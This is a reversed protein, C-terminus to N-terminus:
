RTWSDVCVTIYHDVADMPSGALLAYDGMAKQVRGYKRKTRSAEDETSFVVAALGSGLFAASDVYSELGVTSPSVTLMKEELVNLVSAAFDHMVIELQSGLQARELGPPLVVVGPRAKITQKQKSVNELQRVLSARLALSLTLLPSPPPRGDTSTLVWTTMTM